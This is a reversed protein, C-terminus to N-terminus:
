VGVLLRRGRLEKGVSVTSMISVISVIIWKRLFWKKIAMKCINVGTTRILLSM